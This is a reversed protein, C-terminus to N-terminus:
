NKKKKSSTTNSKVANGFGSYLQMDKSYTPTLHKNTSLTFISSTQSKTDASRLRATKLRFGFSSKPTSLTYPSVVPLVLLFLFTRFVNKM